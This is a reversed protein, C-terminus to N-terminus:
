IIGIASLYSLVGIIFYILCGACFQNLTMGPNIYRQKNDM